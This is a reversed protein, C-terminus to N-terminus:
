KPDAPCVDNPGCYFFCQVTVEEVFWNPKRVLELHYVYPCERQTGGLGTGPKQLLGRPDIWALPNGGVYGYTNPGAKLGIPDSEIYRGISPDYDRFYNYHKAGSADYRQSNVMEEQADFTPAESRGQRPYSIAPMKRSAHKAALVRHASAALSFFIVFAAVGA